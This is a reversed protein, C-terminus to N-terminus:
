DHFNASNGQVIRVNRQFGEHGARRIPSGAFFANFEAETMAAFDDLSKGALDAHAHFEEFRTEVAFRNYPCVQQCVDCGFIRRGIAAHYEDPIEGRLEITHYSICKRADLTHPKILAQTPCAELCKHCSGCHDAMPEDAPLELNWLIAALFLYSGMKPHILCTNKGIWGLGARAAYAREQFPASDVCIRSETDEDLLAEVDKVLRKCQRRLVKHYDRGRAYRAIEGMREQEHEQEAHWYSAGLMLISQAAPWFTRTDMRLDAHRRLYAMEGHMGANLWATFRANPEPLPEAPAVGCLDFGHEYAISKITQIDIM